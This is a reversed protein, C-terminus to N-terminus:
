FWRIKQNKLRKIGEKIVSEWGIFDNTLDKSLHFKGKGVQKKEHWSKQIIFEINKVFIDEIEIFLRKNTKVFYHKLNSVFM